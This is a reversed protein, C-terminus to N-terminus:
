VVHLQSTPTNILLSAPHSPGCDHVAHFSWRTSGGPGAAGARARNIEMTPDIYIEEADKALERIYGKLDNDFGDEHGAKM